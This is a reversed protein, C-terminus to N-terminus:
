QRLFTTEKTEEHDSAAVVVYETPITAYFLLIESSYLRLVAISYYEYFLNLSSTCHIHTSLSRCVKMVHNITLRTLCVSVLCQVDQSTVSDRM